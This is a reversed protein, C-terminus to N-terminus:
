SALPATPQRKGAVGCFGVLSYAHLFCILEVNPRPNSDRWSWLLAQWVAPKKKHLCRPIIVRGSPENDGRRKRLLLGEM